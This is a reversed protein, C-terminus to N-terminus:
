IQMGTIEFYNGKESAYLKRALARIRDIKQDFLKLVAVEDTAEADAPDPPGLVAQDLRFTVEVTADYGWFSVRRRRPDYSRSNNLFSITM